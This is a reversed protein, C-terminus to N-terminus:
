SCNPLGVTVQQVAARRYTEDGYEGKGCEVSPATTQHLGQWTVTVRYIAPTCVGTATNAAQIKEICGRGGEMAGLKTSNDAATEAAGRLARSWECLDLDAGAAEGSCDDGRGDGTGIANSVYSDANDPNGGLRNVMDGLLIIAQARQYSEISGVQTKAQLAAIGLLGVSLIVLTVLVEVLSTGQQSPRNM